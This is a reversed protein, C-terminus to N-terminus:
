MFRRIDLIMRAQSSTPYEHAPRVIYTTAIGLDDIELIRYAWPKANDWVGGATVSWHGCQMWLDGDVDIVSEKHEHGFIAGKFNSYTQLLARTLTDTTSNIFHAVLFIGKKDTYKDMENALWTQDVEKYAYGITPVIATYDGWTDICVFAYDGVCFSYNKAYGLANFWQEDNYTEHSGHVMFYRSDLDALESFVTPMLDVEPMGIDNNCTDGLIGVLNVNEANASTIFLDFRQAGTLGGEGEVADWWNRHMDSGLLIKSVQRAMAFAHNIKLKGHLGAYDNVITGNNGGVSDVVTTGTSENCKYYHVLVGSADYFKIECINGKCYGKSTEGKYMLRNILTDAGTVVKTGVLTKNKYIYLNNGIRKVILNITVGSVIPDSLVTDYYNGALVCQFNGNVAIRFNGSEANNGILVCAADTTIPKVVMRVEFDGVLTMDSALTAHASGNGVLTYIDHQIPKLM